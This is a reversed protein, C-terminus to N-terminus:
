ACQKMLRLLSWPAFGWKTEERYCQLLLGKIDCNTFLSAQVAFVAMNYHYIKTNYQHMEFLM